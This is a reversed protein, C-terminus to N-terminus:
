DFVDVRRSTYESFIKKEKLDFEFKQNKLGLDLYVYLNKKVGMTLAYNEHALPRIVSKKADFAWMQNKNAKEYSDSFVGYVGTNHPHYLDQQSTSLAVKKGTQDTAVIHM